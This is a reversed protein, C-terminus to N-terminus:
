SRPVRFRYPLPRHHSWRHFHLRRERLHSLPRFCLNLSNIHQSLAGKMRRHENNYPQRRILSNPLLRQTETLPRNHLRAQPAGVASRQDRGSNYTSNTYYELTTINQQHRAAACCRRQSPLFRGTTRLPSSQPREASTKASVLRTLPFCCTSLSAANQHSSSRPCSGSKASNRVSNLDIVTSIVLCTDLQNSTPWATDGSNDFSQRISCYPGKSQLVLFFSSILDHHPSDRASNSYTGTNVSKSVSPVRYSATSTPLSGADVTYDSLAM